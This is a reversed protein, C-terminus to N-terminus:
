ENMMKHANIRKASTSEIGFLKSIIYNQYPQYAITFEANFIFTRASVGSYLVIFFYMVFKSIPTNLMNIFYYFICMNSLIFYLKLREAMDLFESMYFFAFIQLLFVNFFINFYKNSKELDERKIVAFLFILIYFVINLVTFPTLGRQVAFSSNTSYAFLKKILIDNELIPFIQLIINGVWNIKFALVCIAIIFFIISSKSSIKCNGFFYFPFLLAASWHFSTAIIILFCYSFFQHYKVFKISYFFIAVALCQRVGSMDLVFFVMSYYLLMALPINVNYNNLGKVIFFGSLSAIFFYLVQINGNFYKIISSFLNYGFNLDSFVNSDRSFIQNVPTIDDFTATYAVWDVGTEYKFASTFFICGFALISLLLQIKKDVEIIEFFSLFCLILFIILYYM